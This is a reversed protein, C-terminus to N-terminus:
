YVGALGPKGPFHGNFHLSLSLSLSLALKSCSFNPQHKYLDVLVTILVVSWCQTILLKLGDPCTEPLPLQLSTSGVGWIIASSDVEKYPIEHILLEWLLVGYSRCVSVILQRCEKERVEVDV